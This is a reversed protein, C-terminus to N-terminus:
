TARLEWNGTGPFVVSAGYLPKNAAQAHTAVLATPHDWLGVPVGGGPGCFVDHPNFSAGAPPMFALEVGADMIIEGSDRRQVMVTIDTHAGRSVEAPTFLTITFPGQSAQARVVASDGNARLPLFCVPLMLAFYLVMRGAVGKEAPATQRRHQRTRQIM